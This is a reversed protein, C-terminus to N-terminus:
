RHQVKLSHSQRKGSRSRDLFSASCAPAGIQLIRLTMALRQQDGGKRDSEPAIKKMKFSSWGKAPTVWIEPAGHTIGEGMEPILALSKSSM